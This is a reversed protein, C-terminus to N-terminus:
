ATAVGPDGTRRSRSWWVATVALLGGTGPGAGWAFAAFLSNTLLGYQFGAAAPVLIVSWALVRLRLPLVVADARVPARRWWAVIWGAVIATGTVDSVRQAWEWGLLSGHRAALWPVYQPGWMWDHTIGDWLLHTAAGILIAVLVRAARDWSARHFALGRPADRPVRAAITHPAVALAVPAFVSQWLVFVITGLVLDSTVLGWPTHGFHVVEPFPLMMPLDPTIAGIVLASGPLGWRALALVAAPHGGTFPM